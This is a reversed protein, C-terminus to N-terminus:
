IHEELSGWVYTHTHTSPVSSPPIVSKLLQSKEQLEEARGRGHRQGCLAGTGIAGTTRTWGSHAQDFRMKGGM